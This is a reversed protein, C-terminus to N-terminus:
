QRHPRDFGLRYVLGVTVLTPYMNGSATPAYGWRQVQADLRLGLRPTLDHDFGGGFSYVNTTSLEYIVNGVQYGPSAYRVAGRGVLFDGYPRLRNHLLFDAKVGGLISKQGDVDGRDLPYVGRVELVPRVYRM